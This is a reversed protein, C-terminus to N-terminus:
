VTLGNFNSDILPHVKDRKSIETIPLPWAINIGPDDYRIGGEVGKMFYNSHCYILQCNEKLTQFGHAFGEPILVAKNNQDSIEVGFWELFTPSGSRLDVIVDYVTGSICKVLKIESCPPHQYHMGRISGKKITFSHNMQVWNLHFGAEQFENKCYFRSFWGRDDSSPQM